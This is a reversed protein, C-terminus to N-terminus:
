RTVEYLSQARNVCRYNLVGDNRLKRLIRAPSDPACEGVKARVWETLDTLHFRQGPRVIYDQIAQALRAEVRALQKTQNV